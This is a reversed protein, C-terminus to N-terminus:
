DAAALFPDEDTEVEAQWLLAQSRQKAFMRPLEAVWYEVVDRFLGHASPVSSDLCTDAYPHQEIWWSRAGSPTEEVRVKPTGDILLVVLRPTWEFNDYFGGSTRVTLEFSLSVTIPDM